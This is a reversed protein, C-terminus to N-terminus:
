WEIKQRDRFFGGTPPNEMLALWIITDAGETVSKPARPGGMDTKVWGPCVANISINTNEKLEEAVLKTIVNLGTKSMRYAPYGSDMQSLQGMGSSVNIIRADNNMIPVLAQILQLPGYTNTDMAEKITNIDVDFISLNNMGTPFIGANNILIDIQQYKQQLDNKLTEISAQDTVDLQHFEVPFNLQQLQEIATLGKDADRSTLVVQVGKEALQRAVEFGIGRNGGTVVAIPPM